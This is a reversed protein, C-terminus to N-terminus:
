KKPINTTKKEKLEVAIAWRGILDLLLKLFSDMDRISAASMESPYSIVVEGEPLPFRAEQTDTPM